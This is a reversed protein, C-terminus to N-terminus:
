QQDTYSYILSMQDHFCLYVGGRVENALRKSLDLDSLTIFHIHDQTIIYKKM